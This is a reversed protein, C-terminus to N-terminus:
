TATFVTELAEDTAPLAAMEAALDSAVRRYTPDELVTTIAKRLADPDISSRLPEPPADADPWVAVGAGAAEVRRANDPQDGFLPVVVLPLGAAVAGMTTGFGGHSVAADANGLVEAPNVWREVRVNSPAPGLAEVDAERNGLTLLVRAPLDAAAEFVAGYLAGAVPMAGAESGFSVYVLPPSDGTARPPRPGSTAPDSFRHTVPPRASEPNDLSPPVLTLYPSGWIREAIGSRHEELRPGALEIGMRDLGAMSVALRAHPVGHREAAIASAFEAQERVLVDPRWEECAASLSPLMARVNLDGFIEGVVIANAEDHSVTPVRAWVPGLEHEPPEAGEWFPYGAREVTPALPPPGAVLVEHGGRLAAEIFPVLPNFHGAGRTSAFLVRVADVRRRSM